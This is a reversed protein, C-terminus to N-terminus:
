LKYGAVDPESNPDWSATAAWAGIASGAVMALALLITSLKRQANWAKIMLLQLGQRTPPPARAKSLDVRHAPQVIAALEFIPPIGLLRSPLFICITYTKSPLSCM